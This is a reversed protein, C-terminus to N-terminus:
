LAAIAEAIRRQLALAEPALPDDLPLAISLIEDSGFVAQYRDHARHLPDDRVAMAALSTDVELRALGAVMVGTVVAAALLALKPRRAPLEALRRWRMALGVDTSRGRARPGRVARAPDARRPGPHAGVRAPRPAPPRGARAPHRPAPPRGRGPRVAGRRARGARRAAGGGLRARRRQLVLEEAPHLLPAEPAPRHRPAAPRARRRAAAGERHLRADQLRAAAARRVGGGRPRPLPRAGGGRQGDLRPRRDPPDLLAAAVRARAGPDRRVPAAGRRPRAAARLLGRAARRGAAGA